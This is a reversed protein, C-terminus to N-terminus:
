SSVRILIHSCMLIGTSKRKSMLANESHTGLDTNALIFIYFNSKRGTIKSERQCSIALKNCSACFPIEIMCSHILRRRAAPITHKLGKFDVELALLKDPFLM